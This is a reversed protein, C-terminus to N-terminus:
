FFHFVQALTSVARSLLSLILLPTPDGTSNCASVSNNNNSLGHKLDSSILDLLLHVTQKSFCFRQEHEKKRYMEYPNTHDRLAPMKTTKIYETADMM